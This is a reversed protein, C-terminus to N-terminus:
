QQESTTPRLLNSIAQVQGVFRNHAHQVAPDGSEGAAQEIVALIAAVEAVVEALESNLIDGQGTQIAYDVERRLRRVAARAEAARRPVGFVRM